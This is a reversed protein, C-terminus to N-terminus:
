PLRGVGERCLSVPSSLYKAMYDEINKARTQWASPEKVQKKVRRAPSRLKDADIIHPLFTFNGDNIEEYWLLAQYIGLWATDLSLGSPYTVTNFIAIIDEAVQQRSPM